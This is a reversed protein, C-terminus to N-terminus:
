PGILLEYVRGPMEVSYSSACFSALCLLYADTNKM